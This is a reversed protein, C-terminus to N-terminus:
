FSLKVPCMLVTYQDFNDTGPPAYFPIEFPEIGEQTVWDDDVLEALTMRTLPDKDMLRRLLHKLHPDLAGKGLRKGRTSGIGSTKGPGSGSGSGSGQGLGSGQGEAEKGSHRYTILIM